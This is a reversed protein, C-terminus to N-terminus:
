PNAKFTESVTYTDGTNDDTIRYRLQLQQDTLAVVERVTTQLSSKQNNALNETYELLLRQEDQTLRWTGDYFLQPATATCKTAGEDATYKGDTAYRYVDDKTCADMSSFYDTRGNLAPNVTLGTQTWTSKTLVDRKSPPAVDDEKKCGMLASLLVAILLPKTM